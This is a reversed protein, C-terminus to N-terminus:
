PYLEATLEDEGGALLVAGSDLLTATHAWRVVNMFGIPTFTGTAADFLEMSAVPLCYAQDDEVCETELAGGAVLIKGSALQTATHASRVSRMSGTNSFSRTTPDFIEAPDPRSTGGTILVRGDSLLNAAHLTRAVRM